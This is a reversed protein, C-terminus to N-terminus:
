AAGRWARALWTVGLDDVTTSLSPIHCLRGIENLSREIQQNQLGDREFGLVTPRDCLADLLDGPLSKLDLLARKVRRQVAELLLAPDRGFPPGRFGAAHCLEVREGPGAPM